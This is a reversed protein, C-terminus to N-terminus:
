HTTAATLPIAPLCVRGVEVYNNTTPVTRPRCSVQWAARRERYRKLYRLTDEHGSAEELVRAWSLEFEEDTRCRWLIAVLMGYLNWRQQTSSAKLRLARYEHLCCRCPISTLISPYSSTATCRPDYWSKQVHWACLVRRTQAGFTNDIARGLAPDDDTVFYGPKIGHRVITHKLFECVVSTVASSAIMHGVPCGRGRDDM